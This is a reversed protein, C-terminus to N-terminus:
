PTYINHDEGARPANRTQMIKGFNVWSVFHHGVVWVKEQHTRSMNAFDFVFAHGPQVSVQSNSLPLTKRGRQINLYRMHDARSILMESMLYDVLPTNAIQLVSMRWPSYGDPGLLDWGIAMSDVFSSNTIRFRIEGGLPTLRPNATWYFFGRTGAPFPVHDEPTPERGEPEGRRYYIASVAREQKENRRKKLYVFIRNSLDVYDKARIKSPNLTPM